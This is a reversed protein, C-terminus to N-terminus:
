WSRGVRVFCRTSAHSRTLVLPTFCPSRTHPGSVTKKDIEEKEMFGPPLFNELMHYMNMIPDIEMDIGSEKTRVEKLLYMMSRLTDLDTVERIVKGQTVRIYETLKELEEKARFHLNDAFRLKWQNCEGKFSTKLSSTNLSLAGINHLSHITDIESEVKGFYQLKEKYDELSPTQDM